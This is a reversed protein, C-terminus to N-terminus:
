EEQWNAHIYTNLTSLRTGIRTMDGIIRQLYILLETMSAAIMPPDTEILPRYTQRLEEVLPRRGEEGTGTYIEHHSKVAAEVRACGAQHDMKFKVGEMTAMGTRTLDAVRNERRFPTTAWFDRLGAYEARIAEAMDAASKDVVRRKAGRKSSSGAGRGQGM